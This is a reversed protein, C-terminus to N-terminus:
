NRVWASNFNNTPYTQRHIWYGEQALIREGDHDAEAAVIEEDVTVQSSAGTATAMFIRGEEEEEGAQEADATKRPDPMTAKITFAGKKDAVGQVTIARE